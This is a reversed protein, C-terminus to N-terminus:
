AGVVAADSAQAEYRALRKVIEYVLEQYDTALGTPDSSWMTRQPAERSRLRALRARKDAAALAPLEGVPVRRSRADVAASELHRIVVQFPDVGSGDLMETIQNLVDQNRVTAKKDADFLLVGLLKIHAGSERAAWFREALRGVQKLSGEDSKTPIILYNAVKLFADLLPQEGPATDILVVEYGETACLEELAGQLNGAMDLGEQHMAHAVAATTALLRGGAILDINHRVNRLPELPYGMQLTAGLSKGEDNDVAGLDEETVTGQSDADIVLVKRGGRRGGTAILEAIAAVTTSKGVGGKRNATCIVRSNGSFTMPAFNVVTVETDPRSV